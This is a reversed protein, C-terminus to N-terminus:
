AAGSVDTHFLNAGTMDANDFAGGELLAGSLDTGRMTAGKMNSLRLDVRRMKAVNFNTGRCRATNLTAGRLDVAELNANTFVTKTCDTDRLDANTLNAEAFDYGALDEGRLKAREGEDGRTDLWLLHYELIEGVPLEEVREVIPDDEPDDDVLDQSPVAASGTEVARDPEPTNAVETPSTDGEMQFQDEDDDHEPLYDPDQEAGQRLGALEDLASSWDDVDTRMDGPPLILDEDAADLAESPAIREGEERERAIPDLTVAPPETAQPTQVLQQPEPKARAEKRVLRIEEDAGTLGTNSIVITETVTPAAEVVVKPQGLPKQKEAREIAPGIASKEPAEQVPDPSRPAPADSKSRGRREPGNYYADEVHRRDPGVYTDVWIIRRPSAMTAAIRRLFDNQSIPKRVINEIGAECAERLMKQDGSKSLLIVAVDPAPSKKPDRLERLFRAAAMGDIFLDVLCVDVTNRELIQFAKDSATAAQFNNVGTHMLVSQAWSQFRVDTDVLLVRLRRWDIQGAAQAGGSMADVM